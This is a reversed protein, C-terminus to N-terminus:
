GGNVPIPNSADFGFAGSAGPVLDTSTGPVLVQGFEAECNKAFNEFSSLQDKEPEDNNEM